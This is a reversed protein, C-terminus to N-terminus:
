FLTNNHPLRVMRRGLRRTVKDLEARLEPSELQQDVQPSFM